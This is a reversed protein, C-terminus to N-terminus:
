PAIKFFFHLVMGVLSSIVTVWVALAPKSISAWVAKAGAQGALLEKIQEIGSACVDVKGELSSFKEGVWAEHRDMRREHARMRGRMDGILLDRSANAPIDDDDDPMGADGEHSLTM